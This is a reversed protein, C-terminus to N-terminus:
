VPGNGPLRAPELGREVVFQSISMGAAGARTGIFRWQSDDAMVSRVEKRGGATKPPLVHSREARMADM